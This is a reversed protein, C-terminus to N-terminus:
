NETQLIQGQETEIEGSGDETKIESVPSAIVVGGSAMGHLFPSPEMHNNPPHFHQMLKAVSLNRRHHM